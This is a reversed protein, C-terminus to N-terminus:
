LKPNLTRPEPNITEIISTSPSPLVLIIKIPKGGQIRKLPKGGRLFHSEFLNGSM